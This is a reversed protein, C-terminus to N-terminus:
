ALDRAQPERNQQLTDPDCSAHAPRNSGAPRGAAPRECELPPRISRVLRRTLRTLPTTPPFTPPAATLFALRPGSPLVMEPASPPPSPDSTPGISPMAAEPSPPLAASPPMPPRTRVMTIPRM